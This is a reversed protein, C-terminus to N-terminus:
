ICQIQEYFKLKSNLYFGLHRLLQVQDIPNDNFHMSIHPKSSIKRSFLLEQAQKCPYSNFNIKRQVIWASTKSLNVTSATIDQGVSFLPTGDTLLKLNCQLGNSLDNIYILFLLTELISGQSVGANM